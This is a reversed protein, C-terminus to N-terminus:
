SVRQLRDLWANLDRETRSWEDPDNDLYSEIDDCINMIRQADDMVEWVDDDYSAEAKMKEALDYIQKRIEDIDTRRM